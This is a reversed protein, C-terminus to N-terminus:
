NGDLLRMVESNDAPGLGRAVLLRQIDTVLHTVPLALAAQLAFAQM